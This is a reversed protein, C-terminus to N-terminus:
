HTRREGHRDGGKITGITKKPNLKELTELIKERKRDRFFSARWAEPIRAALRNLRELAERLHAEAADPSRKLLLRGLAGEIESLNAEDGRAAYYARARELAAEGRHVDAPEARAALKGELLDCQALVEAEGPHSERLAAVVAACGADDEATYRYYADYLAARAREAETGARAAAERAKQVYRGFDALNGEKDAVHALFLYNQGELGTLGNEIAFKLSAHGLAGARDLRGLTLYLHSLNGLVAARTHLGAGTESAELASELAKLADEYAGADQACLGLNMLIMPRWADGEPLIELAQRYFGMAGEFDKVAHRTMGLFNRVSMRGRLDGSADWFPRAERFVAEAEAYHGRRYAIWGRRNLGKGREADTLGALDLLRRVFAGARDLDGTELLVLSATEFFEKQLSPGARETEEAFRRIWEDLHLRARLLNGARYTERVLSLMEGPPAASALARLFDERREADMRYADLGDDLERVLWGEEELRDLLGATERAEDGTIRRVLDASLPTRSFACLSLIERKKAELRSLKLGLIGDFNEAASLRKADFLVRDGELRIAGDALWFEALAIVRLPRGEALREVAAPAEPPLADTMLRDKLFTETEERTWRADGGESEEPPNVKFFSRRNHLSTKIESVTRLAFSEGEAANLAELVRRADEFRESPDKKMLRMALDNLGPSLDARFTKPEPPMKKLQADVLRSLNGREEEFPYRGALMKYLCVGLAFLDARHDYGRGTLMEPALFHITGSPKERPSAGNLHKALGFDILKVADERFLPAGRVVLVNEPKLDGHLIGQGHLHNLARLIQVLCSLIQNYDASQTAAFLDGGDVFEEFFFVAEEDEGYEFVRAINPHALRSLTEFEKRLSDIKKALSTKLVRKLVGRRGTANEVALFAEGIGGRGLSREIRYDSSATGM